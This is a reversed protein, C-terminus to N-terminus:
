SVSEESRGAAGSAEAPLLAGTMCGVGAPEPVLLGSCSIGTARLAFGTGSQHLSGSVTSRNHLLGSAGQGTEAVSTRMCAQVFLNMQPEAFGFLQPPVDTVVRM